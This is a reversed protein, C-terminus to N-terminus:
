GATGAAVEHLTEANSRLSQLLPLEVAPSRAVAARVAQELRARPPGLAAAAAAAAGAAAAAAAAGGGATAARRM